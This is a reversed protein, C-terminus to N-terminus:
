GVACSYVKPLGPCCTRDIMNCYNGPKSAICEDGYMVGCGGPCYHFNNCTQNTGCGGVRVAMDSATLPQVTASQDATVQTTDNSGVAFVAIAISLVAMLIFLGRKM